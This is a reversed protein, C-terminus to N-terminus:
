TLGQWPEPPVDWDGLTAQILALAAIAATDARMIRPGLSVALSAPHTRLMAQEADDFGGEPGVLVAWPGRAAQALADRAPPATGSEDCYLIRRAGDWEDLLHVLDLPARLDPVALLGCQEAAEVAHAKLRELNVRDVVTRRTIVPQLVAAGLETAKEAVFDIRQRKIPAFLLWLDPLKTQARTRKQVRLTLGRKDLTEIQALWEGDRGNFLLAADGRARRLVHALYHSQESSLALARGEALDDSVFLRPTSQAM